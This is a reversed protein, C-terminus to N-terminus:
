LYKWSRSGTIHNEPSFRNSGSFFMITHSIVIVIHLIQKVKGVEADSNSINGDQNGNSKFKHNDRDSDEDSSSSVVAVTKSINERTKEALPKHEKHFDHLMKIIYYVEFVIEKTKISVMVHRTFNSINWYGDKSLVIKTNVAKKHDKHHCTIERKEESVTFDTVAYSFKSRTM